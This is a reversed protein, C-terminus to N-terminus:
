QGEFAILQALATIVGYSSVLFSCADILQREVVDEMHGATGRAHM